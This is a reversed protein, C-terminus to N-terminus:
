KILKKLNYPPSPTPVISSSSAAPLNPRSRIERIILEWMNRKQKQQQQKRKIIKSKTASFISYFYTFRYTHLRTIWFHFFGYSSVVLRSNVVLSLSQTRSDNNILTLASSVSNKKEKKIKWWKRPVWVLGLTKRTSQM